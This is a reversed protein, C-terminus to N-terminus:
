GVHPDRETQYRSSERQCAMAIAFADCKHEDLQDINALRRRDLEDTVWQRVEAKGANGPLGILRKWEPATIEELSTDLPLAAVVAGMVRSLDAVSRIHVGMPREIWVVDHGSIVDGFRIENAIWRPCELSPVNSAVQWTMWSPGTPGLSCGTVRRLNVDVGWIM